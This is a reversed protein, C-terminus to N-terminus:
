KQIPQSITPPEYKELIIKTAEDLSEAEISVNYKPFTFIM